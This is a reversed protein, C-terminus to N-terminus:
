GKIFPKALAAPAVTRGSIRGQFVLVVLTLVYPITSLLQEPIDLGRLPSGLFIILAQAFGFMLCAALAGQPKWRGFIMAALAIFGQGIILTPTFRSVVAISMSAGGFGAFLGSCLVAVWRIRNVRIGLSDAAEPNEGAARLRMGFRTKYLVVWVVAVLIFALYVTAYQNFILGFFGNREFLGTGEAFLERFPLPIKQDLPLPVTMTANDFLKRSVFLALGPGLFNLGIGSIIQDARFVISALGHLSALVLGALGGALFGIWPNGSFYGIAAAFFAGIAMMGELGINTIGSNESIVGGLATFILPTAYLLTTAILFALDIM